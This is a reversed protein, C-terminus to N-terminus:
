IPYKRQREYRMEEHIDELAVTLSALVNLMAEMKETSEQLRKASLYWKRLLWLWLVFWMLLGAWEWEM